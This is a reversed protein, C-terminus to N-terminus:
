FSADSEQLQLKLHDHAVVNTNPSLGMDEVLAIFARFWQATEGAWFYFSRTLSKDIINWQRIITMYSQNNYNLTYLQGLVPQFFAIKM